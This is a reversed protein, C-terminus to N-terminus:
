PELAERRLKEACGLVVELTLSDPLQFEVLEVLQSLARDYGKAYGREWDDVHSDGGRMSEGRMNVERIRCDDCGASHFNHHEFCYGGVGQSYTM